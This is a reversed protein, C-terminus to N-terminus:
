CKSGQQSWIRCKETRASREALDISQAAKLTKEVTKASIKPDVLVITIGIDEVSGMTAKQKGETGELQLEPRM